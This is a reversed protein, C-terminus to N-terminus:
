RTDPCVALVAAAALLALGLYFPLPYYVVGGYNATYKIRWWVRGLASNPYDFRARAPVSEHPGFAGALLATGEVSTLLQCGQRVGLGLYWWFGTAVAAAAVALVVLSRSVVSISYFDGM